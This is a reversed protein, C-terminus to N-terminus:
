PSGGSPGPCGARSSPPACVTALRASPRTPCASSPSARCGTRCTSRSQSVVDSPATSRPPRSPPSCAHSRNSTIPAQVEGPSAGPVEHGIVVEDILTKVMAADDMDARILVGRSAWNTEANAGQLHSAVAVTDVATGAVRGASQGSCGAGPLGRGRSPTTSAARPTEEQRRAPMLSPLSASAEFSRRERRPRVPVRNDGRRLRGCLARPMTHWGAHRECPLWSPMITSDVNSAAGGSPFDGPHVDTDVAQACDRGAPPQTYDHRRFPRRQRTRIVRDPVM